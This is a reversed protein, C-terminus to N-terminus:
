GDREVQRLADDSTADPSIPEIGAPLEVRLDVSDDIRVSVGRSACELV